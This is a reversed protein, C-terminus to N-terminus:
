FSAVLSVDSSYINSCDKLFSRFVKRIRFKIQSIAMKMGDCKMVKVGLSFSSEFRATIRMQQAFTRTRIM